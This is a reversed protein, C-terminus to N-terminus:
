VHDQYVGSTWGDVDGWIDVKDAQLADYMHYEGDTMLAAVILVGQYGARYTAQNVVEFLVDNDLVQDGIGVPYAPETGSSTGATVCELILSRDADTGDVDSATTSPKIFTGPATASRATAATSVSSTWTTVTPGETGTDYSSIGGADALLTAAGEHDVDYQIGEIASLAASVATDELVQWWIQHLADTTLEFLEFKDPVFGVPLYIDSGDAIFIGTNYQM